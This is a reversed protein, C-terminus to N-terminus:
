FGPYLDEIARFNQQIDSLLSRSLTPTKSRQQELDEALRKLQTAGVIAAGGKIRHALDTVDSLKHAKVAIELHSIDERTTQFFIKILENLLEDDGDTIQHLNELNLM